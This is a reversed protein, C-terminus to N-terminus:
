AARMRSYHLWPKGTGGGGGGVVKYHTRRRAPYIIRPHDAVDVTGSITATKGNRLDIEPSYRGLIPTYIVLAEPRILLASVGLALQTFGSAGIDVNWIALEAIRGDWQLNTTLAGSQAAGIRDSSSSAASHTYTANGFTVAGGGEALGSVYPTITDAAINNVGGLSWWQGTTINTTSTRSQFADGTGSRGGMRLKTGNDVNFFLGAVGSGIGFAFLANDTIGTASYTDAYAWCHISIASAGNFLPGIANTGFSLTNSTNKTFDRAM